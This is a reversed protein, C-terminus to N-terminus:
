GFTFAYASVTGSTVTLELTHTTYNTGFDALTYLQDANVTSTSATGGDLRVSVTGSGSMVLYAKAAHFQMTLQAGTSGTINEDSEHWPGTLAWENLQAPTHAAKRQRRSLGLYTEPTQIDQFDPAIPMAALNATVSTNLLDKIAQETTMEAGEGFHEYRVSGNQDVLYKAPWYNNAYAKWVAFDNDQAIPYQIGYKAIAARVNDEIREFAFEPAHIGIIVLGQSRYANDLAVLEPLTRICNICSYTWFDILVVKGHLDAMTLPGGQVWSTLGTLEPARYLQPLSSTTSTTMSPPPSSTDAATHPSLPATYQALLQQELQTSGLGKGVFYNEIDKDTGTVILMGVVLLVGGLIKKFNGDPRVAWTFRAAVARGFFGVAILVVILGLAYALLYITGSIIDVPLVTALILFYTPSCSAFVPGLSMGLLVAGWIGERHPAATHPMLHLAIRDWLQPAVLAAGFALILGGSLYRWFEQPVAIFATSVKLLLTFIVVSIGLSLAIIVPRWLTRSGLTGSLLVPLVPLVCPALVTLIGALFAIGLLLINMHLNQIAITPQHHATQM